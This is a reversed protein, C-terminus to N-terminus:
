QISDVPVGIGDGGVVMGVVVILVGFSPIYWVLM